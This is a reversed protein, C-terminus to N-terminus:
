DIQYSFGKKMFLTPITYKRENQCGLFQKYSGILILESKSRSCATFILKSSDKGCEINPNWMSHGESIMIFVKQKESGQLKHITSAYFLNFLDNLEDYLVTEKSGDDDYIITVKQKQDDYDQIIGQQGNVKIDEKNSYDNKVRVVRDFLKFKCWSTEFIVEHKNYTEQIINNLSKVGFIGKHQPTLIITEKDDHNYNNENLIDLIQKKDEYEVDVFSVNEFLHKKKVLKHKTMREVITAVCGSSRNNILLKTHPKREDDDLFLGNEISDIISQLPNGPGIPPLQNPDGILWLKCGFIKVFRLLEQFTFINVMSMEDIIILEPYKHRECKIKPFINHIMKHLTGVYEDNLQLTGLKTRLSKFAIGTPALICIREVDVDYEYGVSADHLKIMLNLACEICSSKGTGPGGTLVALKHKCLNYIANKQKENFEFNDYSKNCEIFECIKQEVIYDKLWLSTVNDEHFMEIMTDSMKKEINMFHDTTYFTTQDFAITELLTMKSLNISCYKERFLKYEREFDRKTIYLTNKCRLFLDLIWKDFLTENSYYIHKLKAIDHAKNFSILVTDVMILSFPDKEIDSLLIDHYNIYSIIRNIENFKLKFLMVLEYRIYDIDVIADQSKKYSLIKDYKKLSEVCKLLIEKEKKSAQHYMLTKEIDYDYM